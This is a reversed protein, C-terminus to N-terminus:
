TARMMKNSRSSEQAPNSRKRSILQKLHDSVGVLIQKEGLRVEVAAYERGQVQDEALLKEDEEITTPYDKLRAELVTTLILAVDETLLPKPLKGSDRHRKFESTSLLLTRVIVLVEEPIDFSHDLDFSDSLIGEELLFEIRAARDAASLSHGAKNLILPSAIEVVDYQKYNPTIYGYRRLLDSRPLPGYDNFLESGSGVTSITKMELGTLTEFLRCNNRDADANLMDALPVMTKYHGDEEVGDEEDSDADPTTSTHRAIALDFSYSMIVSAMRHAVRLFHTEFPTGDPVSTLTTGHFVSKNKMIVPLLKHTFIDDADEKGIKNLVSSGRLASLEEPKWFMLSNFNEPLLDIYPKWPSLQRTEFILVLILALWSDLSALENTPMLTSLESTETSLISGRPIRFLLEDQDLSAIAVLGRGSGATRLDALAVKPNLEANLSGTFWNMFTANKQEFSDEPISM